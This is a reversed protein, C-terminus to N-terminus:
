WESVKVKNISASGGNYHLRWKDGPGLIQSILTRHTFVIGTGGESLQFSVPWTEPVGDREIELVVEGHNAAGDEFTFTVDVSLFARKTGNTVWEEFDPSTVPPYSFNQTTIDTSPSNSVPPTWSFNGNEDSTIIFGSAAGEPLQIATATLLGNATTTGHLTVNTGNGDQSSIYEGTGIGTLQQTVWGQTAVPQGAATINGSADFSYTAGGVKITDSYIARVPLEDSGLDYTVGVNPVLAGGDRKIRWRNFNGLRFILDENGLTQLTGSIVPNIFTNNTGAGGDSLIYALNEGFGLDPLQNTPVKGTADLSAYGNAQGRHIKEEYIPSHKWIYTLEQSVLAELHFTSNTHPVSIVLTDRALGGNKVQYDGAALQVSYSGNTDTMTSVTQSLIQQGDIILPTSIPQFIVNTRIPAGSATTLRNTVTAAKAQPLIALLCYGIALLIALPASRRAKGPRRDRNREKLRHEIEPPIRDSADAVQDLLARNQIKVQRDSTKM